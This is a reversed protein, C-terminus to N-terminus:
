LNDQDIIGPAEWQHDLVNFLKTESKKVIEIKPETPLKRHSDTPIKKFM